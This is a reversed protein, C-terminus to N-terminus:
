GQKHTNGRFRLYIMRLVRVARISFGWPALTYFWGQRDPYFNRIYLFRWPGMVKKVELSYRAEIYFYFLDFLSHFRVFSIQGNNYYGIEMGRMLKYPVRELKM